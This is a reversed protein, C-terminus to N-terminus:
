WNGTAGGTRAPESSFLKKIGTGIATGIANAPNIVQWPQVGTAEKADYIFGGLNFNQDGSVSAGAANVASYFVNQDNFPNVAQLAQGAGDVVASSAKRVTYYVVGVTLLALMMTAQTQTVKM